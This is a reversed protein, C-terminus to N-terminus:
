ARNGYLDDDHQESLDSRGSHGPNSGLGFIPDDSAPIPLVVIRGQEKRIEVAKVGKLMRKPILLGEKRVEAKM